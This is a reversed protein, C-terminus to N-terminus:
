NAAYVDDETGDLKDPGMSYLDYEKPNKKGPLRLQYKQGWPDIIGEASMFESKSVAAAPPKVLSELDKPYGRNVTKYQLMTSKITGMQAGAAVIAAHEQVNKLTVVGVAILMAIIALVLMMEMLTFASRVCRNPLPLAPIKM